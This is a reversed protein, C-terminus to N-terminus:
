NDFYNEIKDDAEQNFAGKLFLAGVGGKEGRYDRGLDFIEALYCDPIKSVVSIVKKVFRKEQNTGMIYIREVGEQLHEKVRKTYPDVSYHFPHAVLLFAYSTAPGKRSWKTESDKSLNQVFNKTHSLVSKLEDEFRNRLEKFKARTAIEHIERLFAGTFFGRKDIEDFDDIFEVISSDEKIASELLNNEFKETLFPRKDKITRRSIQLASAKRANQPIIEKTTPFLAGSFFFFIGNILNEDQSKLPRIRLIMEGDKLENEKINKDVWKISAKKIWGVPLEFQLESVVENVANEIDSAIARKELIKHKIKGAIFNWFKVRLRGLQPILRFLTEVFLIIVTIKGIISFIDDFTLNKLFEIM